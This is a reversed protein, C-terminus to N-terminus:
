AARWLGALLQNITAAPYRKGNERCAEIVFTPLWHNLLEVTPNELLDKPCKEGESSQQNWWTHFVRLAWETCRETNKPTFGKCATEVEASTSSKFCDKGLSLSLRRKKTSPMEEPDAVAVRQAEM